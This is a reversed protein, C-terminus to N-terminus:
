GRLYTFVPGTEIRLPASDPPDFFEGDIVFPTQTTIEITKATFSVAGPPAVRTEGGYMMPILWRLLNPVPYPFISARLPGAKGGWYPRTRLILKELTTAIFMLQGGQARLLGDSRITMDYARDIRKENLANARSFLSKGIAASLTAFTAWDGKLGTRHVAEQCYLTAQWVAGTGLFMGHRVRGDRPNAIRITPRELVEVAAPQRLFAAIAAPSRRRFGIDAATMNTTGHPLLALRPPQTFPMREALETQVAQITGDGSSIFLDTIGLSAFEDLILGISRFNELTRVAVQPVGGALRALEIGRVNRKGSKPNVILGVKMAKGDDM